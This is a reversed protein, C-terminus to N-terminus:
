RTGAAVEFGVGEMGHHEILPAAAAATRPRAVGVGVQRGVRRPVQHLVDLTGRNGFTSAIDCRRVGSQEGAVVGAVAPMSLSADMGATSTWPRWSM